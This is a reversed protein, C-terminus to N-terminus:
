ASTAMNKHRGRQPSLYELVPNNVVDLAGPGTLAQGPIGGSPSPGVTTMTVRLKDTSTATVGHRIKNSAAALDIHGPTVFLLANLGAWPTHSWSCPVGRRQHPPPCDRCSSGTPNSWRSSCARQTNQERSVDRIIM